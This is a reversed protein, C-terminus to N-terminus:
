HQKYDQRDMMDSELLWNLDSGDPMRSAPDPYIKFPNRHAVIFLEQDMSKEDGYDNAVSLWGWGGTIASSQACDYAYDAGSIAEVHRTLGNLVKATEVDAGEGVPDIKIRPRNERCNNEVRRIVADTINVTICPRNSAVRDATIEKPWQFGNRFELATIADTRNTSEADSSLRLRERAERVIEDPTSAREDDM